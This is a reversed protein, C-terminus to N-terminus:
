MMDKEENMINEMYDKWDLESKLHGVRLVTLCFQFLCPVMSPHFIFLGCDFESNQAHVLKEYEKLSIM